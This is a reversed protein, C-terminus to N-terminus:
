YIEVRPLLALLQGFNQEIQLRYYLYYQLLTEFEFLKIKIQQM